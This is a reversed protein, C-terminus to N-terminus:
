LGNAIWSDRISWRVHCSGSIVVACRNFVCDYFASGDLYVTCGDFTENKAIM